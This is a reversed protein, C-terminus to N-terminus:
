VFMEVWIVHGIIFTSFSKAQQVEFFYRDNNTIFLLLNINVDNVFTCSLSM